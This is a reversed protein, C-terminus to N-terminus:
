RRFTRPQASSKPSAVVPAPADEVVEPEDAVQGAEGLLAPHKGTKNYKEKEEASLHRVKIQNQYAVGEEDSHVGCVHKELEEVRQNLSTLNSQM